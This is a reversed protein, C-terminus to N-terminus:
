PAAPEQTPAPTERAFEMVDAGPARLERGLQRDNYRMEAMWQNVSEAWSGDSSPTYKKMITEPTTRGEDIYYAKLERGARDFNSEFDPFELTGREHIGFGLCNYSGEPIRKCLNSEQMAIAPLLRFDFGYKDAISVFVEGYHDSPTLPSDHRDLFDAVVLARSDTSEIITEVGKVKGNQPQEQPVLIPATEVPQEIPTQAQLSYYYLLGGGSGLIVAASLCLWAFGAFFRHM